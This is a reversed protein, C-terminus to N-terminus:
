QLENDNMYGVRLLNVYSGNWIYCGDFARQVRKKSFISIVHIYRASTVEVGEIRYM